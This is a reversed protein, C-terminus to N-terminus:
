GDMIPLISPQVRVLMKLLVFSFEDTASSSIYGSFAIDGANLTTAAVPLPSIIWSALVQYTGACGASCNARRGEIFVFGSGAALGTTSINSGPTYPLYTIGGDTTYRYDDACGTGGSGTNFTASVPTGDAVTNSVPLKSALTPNVPLVTITLTASNSTSSGSGNSAICRYQYNNLSASPNSINLTASTVNSYTVDNSLNVFGTGPDVQWQYSTAGSVTVSFSTSVGECVSANAPQGSISPVAGMGLYSCGTPVSFGPPISNNAIWNAQNNLAARLGTIPGLTGPGADIEV